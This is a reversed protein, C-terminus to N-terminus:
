VGSLRCWTLRMIMPLFRPIQEATSSVRTHKSRTGSDQEDQAQTRINWISTFVHSIPSRRQVTLGARLASKRGASSLKLSRWQTWTNRNRLRIPCDRIAHIRLMRSHTGRCRPPCPYPYDDRRNDELMSLLMLWTTYMLSSLTVGSIMVAKIAKEAAQQAEFACIRWTPM